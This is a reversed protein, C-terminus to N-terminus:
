RSISRVRAVERLVPPERKEEDSEETGLAKWGARVACVVSDLASALDLDDRDCNLEEYSATRELLVVANGIM